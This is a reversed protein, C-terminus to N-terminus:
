KDVNTVNTYIATVVLIIFMVFFIGDAVDKNSTLALLAYYVGAVLTITVLVM